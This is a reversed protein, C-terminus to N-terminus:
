AGLGQSVGGAGITLIQKRNGEKKYSCHVWGAHPNGEKWFELILQDFDLNNMIWIALNLNSVGPVEFDVAEGSPHSKRAFYEPWTKENPMKSCRACWKAFASKADDGGWCIRKELAECRFGSKPQIPVGYHDRVPQLMKECVRMLNQIENTNPKNEIGFRLATGSKSLESLTFNNSLNM